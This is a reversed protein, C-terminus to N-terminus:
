IHNKTKEYVGRFVSISDAWLEESIKESIIGGVVENDGYQEGVFSRIKNRREIFTPHTDDSNELQYYSKEDGYNLISTSRTLIDSFTFLLDFGIYANSIDYGRGYMADIALLLGYRDADFEMQKSYNIEGISSIDSEIVEIEDSELHRLRIHSYEHGMVFFEMANAIGMSIVDYPPELYYQSVASTTGIAVPALLLEQFRRLIRPNKIVNANIEFTNPVFSYSQTDSLDDSISLKSVIRDPLASTVVKSVLNCFNIFDHNFILLYDPSDQILITKANLERTPLTGIVPLKNTLGQKPSFSSDSIFRPKQSIDDIEKLMDLLIKYMVPNEYKTPLSLNRLADARALLRFRFKERHEKELPNLHEFHENIENKYDMIVEEIQITANPPKIGIKSYETEQLNTLCSQATSIKEMM